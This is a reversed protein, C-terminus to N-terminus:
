VYDFDHFQLDGLSWHHRGCSRAAWYIPAIVRANNLNLLAGWLAFSSNSLIINKAKLLQIFDSVFSGGCHHSATMEHRDQGDDSLIRVDQGLIRRAYNPDDTLVAIQDLERQLRNLASSYYDNTLQSTSFLFDGGRVHILTDRDCLPVASYVEERLPLIRKLFSRGGPWYGKGALLGEVKITGRFQLCHRIIDADTAGVDHGCCPDVWRREFLKKAPYDFDVVGFDLDFLDQGKFEHVSTFAFNADSLEALGRISAYTYLQNGLGQGKYFEGVILKVIM